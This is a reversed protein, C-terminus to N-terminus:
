AAENDENLGSDPSRSKWWEFHEAAWHLATKGRHDAWRALQADSESGILKIFAGAPWYKSKVAACFRDAPHWKKFPITQSMIVEHLAENTLLPNNGIDESCEM